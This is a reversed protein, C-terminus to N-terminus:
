FLIILNLLIDDSLKVLSSVILLIYVLTVLFM